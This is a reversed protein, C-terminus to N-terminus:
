IVLMFRSSVHTLWRNTTICLFGFDASAFCPYWYLGTSTTELVEAHPEKILSVFCWLRHKWPNEDAHDLDKPNTHNGLIMGFGKPQGDNGWIKRKLSPLLQPDAGMESLGSDYM